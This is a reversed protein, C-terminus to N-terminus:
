VPLDFVLLGPQDLPLEAAIEGSPSLVATPGWAINREREGTVDSSLLWLGTERCRKAREANHVDRFEEARDRPLMNNACCIILTAGQDAVARATNPFNTDYCINVGFHLGDAEFLPCDHGPSFAREAPLLHTKRYRGILKRHKIVIVTNYLRDGEAEIIGLVIMPGTAPFQTLINQFAPSELDFAVKRASEADWFYGQLYCEPFVLLSAGQAEACASIDILYALAAPVHDRFEPTQAAAVRHTRRTETM